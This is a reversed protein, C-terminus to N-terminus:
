RRSLSLLQVVGAAAALSSGLLVAMTVASVLARDGFSVTAVYLSMIFGIGALLAVGVLENWSVGCPLQAVGLRVSTWAVALVGLPKGVSLGLVVGLVAPSSLAAWSTADFSVGGNLFAFLPVILLVNWPHLRHIADRVPSRCPCSGVHLPVCLGAIVGSLTPEIGANNMTAWLLAGAIVYPWPRSVMLLNLGVLVGIGGVVLSAPVPNIGGSYFVAVILVVVIDDFTALALLFVKLSAPVQKGMLSLAALAMVIDTAAPIAWGERLNPHRSTLLLYVLSTAVIGGIACFAPLLARSLPKLHGELVHRKIELGVIVFFITMLGKNVWELMPGEIVLPGLRLHLPLEKILLHVHQLPSNAVVLALALSAIM